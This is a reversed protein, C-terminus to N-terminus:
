KTGRLYQDTVAGVLYGAAGVIVALIAGYFIASTNHEVAVCLLFTLGGAGLAFSYKKEIARMKDGM